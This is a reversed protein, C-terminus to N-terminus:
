RVRVTVTESDSNRSEDIAFVRFTLDSGVPVSSAIRLEVEFIESDDDDVRENEWRVHTSTRSDEDPDASVFQFGSSFDADIDVRQRDNSRNEVEIEFRVTEGPRAETRDPNIDVRLDDGHHEDQVRVTERESSHDGDDDTATLNVELREDDQAEDRVRLVLEIEEEDDERVLVDDWRVETGTILRGGDSASVFSLHSDILGVIDVRQDRDTQNRVTIDYVVTDGQRVQDGDTEIQISLDEDDNGNDEEVEVTDTDTDHDGGDEADVTVELDDGEDASTRVRFTVSLFRTQDDPISINRWEVRRDSLEVGGNDSSVYVLDEDHTAEVDFTDTDGSQNEVEIRFTVLEGPEATDDEARVNVTVDGNNDDDNDDCRRSSSGSDRVCVTETEDDDGTEGEASVDLDLEDGDTGNKVRLELRVEEEDDARVDINDWEVRDRGVDDGDDSADEFEFEDRDFEARIDVRQDENSRNRVRIRYEVIDGERPTDDDVSIDLSIGDNDSGGDNGGSSSSGGDGGGQSPPAGQTLSALTQSSKNTISLDLRYLIEAVEGRTIVHSLSTISLPIAHRRGLEDIANARDLRYATAIASAAESFPILQQPGFFGGSYGTMIGQERAACVYSNFWDFPGVDTFATTRCSLILSPNVTANTIFKAFEARTVQNDPRFTGDPYGHVIGRNKAYEIADHNPHGSSVDFFEAGAIGPLLVVAAASLGVLLRSSAKLPPLDYCFSSTM